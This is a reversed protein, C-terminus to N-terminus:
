RLARDLDCGVVYIVQGSICVARGGGVIGGRIMPLLHMTLSDAKSSGRGYFKRSRM